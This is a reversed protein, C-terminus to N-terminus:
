PIDLTMLKRPKYISPQNSILPVAINAPLSRGERVTVAKSPGDPKKVNKTSVRRGVIKAWGAYFPDKSLCDKKESKGKPVKCTVNELNLPKYVPRVFKVTKVAAEKKDTGECSPGGEDNNDAETDDTKVPKAFAITEDKVDKETETNAQKLLAENNKLNDHKDLEISEISTASDKKKSGTDKNGNDSMGSDETKNRDGTQLAINQKGKTYDVGTRRKRVFSSERQIDNDAKKCDSDFVNDEGNGNADHDPDHDVNMEWITTTSFRTRSTKRRIPPTKFTSMKAGHRENFDSTVVSERQEVAGKLIEDTVYIKDGTRTNYMYKKGTTVDKGVGDYEKGGIIIPGNGTRQQQGTKITSNTDSATEQAM